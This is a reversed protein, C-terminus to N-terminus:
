FLNQRNLFMYAILVTIKIETQWARNLLLLQLSDNIEVNEILQIDTCKYYGIGIYIYHNLKEYKDNM